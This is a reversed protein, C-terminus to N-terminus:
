IATYEPHNQVFGEDATRPYEFWIRLKRKGSLLLGKLFDLKRFDVHFILLFVKKFIIYHFRPFKDLVFYALIDPVWEGENRLMYM